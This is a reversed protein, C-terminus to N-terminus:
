YVIQKREEQSLLPLEGIPREAVECIAILINSLHKSIRAITDQDFQGKAYCYHFGLEEGIGILLTLPYNTQEHNEIGGFVLGNPASQELAESVPYNEFVLLSDFLAEGGLGAWRQVEFLPTHEQERLALNQSQVQQLFDGLSQEPKPSAIVPLTNIFLGVQQEVGKLEAPRGSVTAGFTVTEQGTYRQLLLLWAAQVLTNVTVKQQRAFESLRQTQE